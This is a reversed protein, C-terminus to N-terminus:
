LSGAGVTALCGRRFYLSVQSGDQLARSEALRRRHAAQELEEPPLAARDDAFAGGGHVGKSFTRIEIRFDVGSNANM